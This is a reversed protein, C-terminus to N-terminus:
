EGSRWARILKSGVGAVKESGVAVMSAVIVAIAMMPDISTEFAYNGIPILLVGVTFGALGIVTFAKHVFAPEDDTHTM